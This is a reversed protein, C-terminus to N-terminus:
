ENALERARAAVLAEVELREEKRLLPITWKLYPLSSAIFALLKHHAEDYDLGDMSYIVLSFIRDFTPTTESFIGVGVLKPVEERLSILALLYAYHM